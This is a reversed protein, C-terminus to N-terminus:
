ITPIVSAARPPWHLLIKNKVFQRKHGAPLVKYQQRHSTTNWERAEKLKHTTSQFVSFFVSAAPSLWTNLEALQSRLLSFAGMLLFFALLFVSMARLIHRKESNSVLDPCSGPWLLIRIIQSLVKTDGMEKRGCHVQKWKLLPNFIKM